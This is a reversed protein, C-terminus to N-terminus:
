LFFLPHGSEVIELKVVQLGFVLLLPHELMEAQGDVRPLRRHAHVLEHGRMELIGGAVADLSGYLFAVDPHAVLDHLGIVYHARVVDDAEHHGVPAPSHLYQRLVDRKVYDVFVVVHQDHVLGGPHHHMRPVSVIVSGEDVGECEM